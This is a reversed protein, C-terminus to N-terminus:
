LSEQVVEYPEEGEALQVVIRKAFTDVKVVVDKEEVPLPTPTFICLVEGKHKEAVWGDQILSPQERTTTKVFHWVDGVRSNLGFDGDVACVRTEFVQMQTTPAVYGLVAIAKGSKDTVGVGARLARGVNNNSQLTGIKENM